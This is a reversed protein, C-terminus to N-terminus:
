EDSQFSEDLDNLAALASTNSRHLEARQLAAAKYNRGGVLRVVETAKDAAKTMESTLQDVTQGIQSKSGPNKGGRSRLEALKVFFTEKAAQVRSLEAPADKTSFVDIAPAEVAAALASLEHIASETSNNEVNAAVQTQYLASLQRVRGLAVLIGTVDLLAIALLLITWRTNRRSIAEIIAAIKM